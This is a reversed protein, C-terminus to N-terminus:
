VCQEYSCTVANFCAEALFKKGSQMNIMSLTPLNVEETVVISKIHNANTAFVEVPTADFVSNMLVNLLM